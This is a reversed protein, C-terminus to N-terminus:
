ARRPPPSAARVPSLLVAGCVLLVALGAWAWSWGLAAVAAGMALPGASKALTTYLQLLGNRRGFGSAGYREVLLAPRLVTRAGTMAGYGVVMTVAAASTPWLLPALVAGAQIVISARLLAFASTHRALALFLRGGLKAMGAIGAILAAFQVTMGQEVLFVVLYATLAVGVADVVMLGISLRVFGSARRDRGVPAEPTRPEGSTGVGSPLFVTLPVVVVALGVALVRLGARWGLESDLLGAVPWFVTSALAGILTVILIARRANSPDARVIAAFAPPYLIGAMALGIVAWALFYTPLSTSTSWLWAGLSGTIASVTMLGRPGREDVWRGVSPAPLGSILLAVSFGGALVTSSWGFEDEMAPLFVSFSFYLVGWAVLQILSLQATLRRHM